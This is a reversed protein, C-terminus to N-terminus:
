QAAIRYIAGTSYAAVHIEGAADEGFTSIQFGSTALQTTTWIGNANRTAGWIRGSCFDGYLFYGSLVPYSAGRYRHGGTVSCGLSHDYDLVAATFTPDFCPPGGGLGTCQTGEMIRWGFNAGTGTGAPLFNIEERASQGVDAIFLDGTTRDFSFRWPNRLGYAWIEP